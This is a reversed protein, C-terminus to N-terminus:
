RESATGRRSLQWLKAREPLPLYSLLDYEALLIWHDELPARFQELRFGCRHCGYHVYSALGTVLMAGEPLASENEGLWDELEEVTYLPLHPAVPMEPCSDQLFAHKLIIGLRRGVVLVPPCDNEIDALIAHLARHYTRGPSTAEAAQGLNLFILLSLVAVLVWRHREGQRRWLDLLLKAVHL